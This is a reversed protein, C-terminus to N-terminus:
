RLTDTKTDTEPGGVAARYGQELLRRQGADLLLARLTRAVQEMRDCLEPTIKFSIAVSMAVSRGKILREMDAIADPLKMLFKVYRDLDQREFVTLPKATKTQPIPSSQAAAMKVGDNLKMEGAAVKSLLEPANKKITEAQRIKHPTTRAKQALANRTSHRDRKPAPPNVRVKSGVKEGPKAQTARQREASVKKEADSWDLAIAARQDDTLHRRLVNRSWIFEAETLRQGSLQDDKGETVVRSFHLVRPVLGLEKCAKLRHRGDLVIPEDGAVVIPELQGHEEIDRKLKEFEDKPLDPFLKALPHM